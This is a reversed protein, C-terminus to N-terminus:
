GDLLSPVRQKVDNACIRRLVPFYRVFHHKIHLNDQHWKKVFQLRGVLLEETHHAVIAVVKKIDFYGRVQRVRVEGILLQLQLGDTVPASSTGDM